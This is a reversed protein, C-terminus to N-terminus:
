GRQTKPSARLPTRSLRPDLRAGIDDTLSDRLAKVRTYVKEYEALTLKRGRNADAAEELAQTAGFYATRVPKSMYIGGKDYYWNHWDERVDQLAEGTVEGRIWARPVRKTRLWLENYAAVRKDRLERDYLLELEHRLRSNTTLWSIIGGAIAGVLGALIQDM